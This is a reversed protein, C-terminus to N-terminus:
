APALVFTIVGTAVYVAVVVLFSALLPKIEKSETAYLGIKRHLFDCTRHESNSNHLVTNYTHSADGVM